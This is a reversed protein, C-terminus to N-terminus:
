KLKKAYDKEVSKLETPLFDMRMKHTGLGDTRYYAIAGLIDEKSYEGNEINDRADRETKLGFQYKVALLVEKLDYYDLRDLDFKRRKGVRENVKSEKTSRIIM